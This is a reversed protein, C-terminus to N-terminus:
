ISKRGELVLISQHIPHTKYSALEYINKAVTFISSRKGFHKANKNWARKVSFDKKHVELLSSM